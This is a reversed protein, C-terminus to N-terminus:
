YGKYKQIEGVEVFFKVSASWEGGMLTVAPFEALAIRGRVMKPRERESGRVLSRVAQRAADRVSSQEDENLGARGRANIVRLQGGLWAGRRAAQATDMEYDAWLRLISGERTSRDATMRMDGFSLEGLPTWDFAEEVNRATEGVEYEFEWGYIMGSFFGIAGSLAALRAEHWSLPYDGTKGSSGAGPLMKWVPETDVTVMGRLVNQAYGAGSVALLVVASWLFVNIRM